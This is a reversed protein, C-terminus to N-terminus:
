SSREIQGEVFDYVVYTYVKESCKEPNYQFGLAIGEAEEMVNQPVCFTVDQKAPTIAQIFKAEIVKGEKDIRMELILAIKKFKLVDIMKGVYNGEEKGDPAVITWDYIEEAMVKVKDGYAYGPISIIKCAIWGNILGKEIKKVRVFIQEYNGKEDYIRTTVMFQYKTPLGKEFREIAEPLTERAMAIYPAMFEELAEADGSLVDDRLQKTIDASFVTKGGFLAIFSLLLTIFLCIIPKAKVTM